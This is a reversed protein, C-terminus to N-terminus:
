LERWLVVERANTMNEFEGFKSMYESDYNVTIHNGTGDIDGNAVIGGTVNSESPNGGGHLVVSSPNLLYLVGHVRSSGHLVINGEVMYIGYVTRGGGVTLHGGVYTVNPIAGSAYFNFNPYGHAPNFDGAFFHGQATALAILAADDINPMSDAGEEMINPDPNGDEDLPTVNDVDGTSYIAFDSIPRKFDILVEVRRDANNVTGTALLHILSDPKTISINVSGGPLTVTESYPPSQGAFVRSIGYEIGAETVYQAQMGQLQRVSMLQDNTM